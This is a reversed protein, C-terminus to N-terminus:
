YKQSTGFFIEPKAVLYIKGTRNDSDWNQQQNNSIVGEEKNLNKKAVWELHGVSGQWASEQWCTEKERITSILIM